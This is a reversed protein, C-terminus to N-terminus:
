LRFGSLDWAIYFFLIGHSLKRVWRPLLDATCIHLLFTVHPADKLCSASMPLNNGQDIDPASLSPARPRDMAHGNSQRDDPRTFYHYRVALVVVMCLLENGDQKRLDNYERIVSVHCFRCM